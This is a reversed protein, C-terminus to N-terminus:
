KSKFASKLNSITDIVTNYHDITIDTHTKNFHDAHIAESNAVAHAVDYIVLAELDSQVDALANIAADVRQQMHSNIQEYTQEALLADDPQQASTADKTDHSSNDRDQDTAKATVGIVADNLDLADDDARRDDPQSALKDTRSEIKDEMTEFVGKAIILYNINYLKNFLFTCSNSTLRQIANTYIQASKHLNQM